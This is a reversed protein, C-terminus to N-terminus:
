IPRTQAMHCPGPRRWRLGRPFRRNQIRYCAIRTANVWESEIGHM